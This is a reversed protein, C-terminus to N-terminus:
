EISQDYLDGDIAAIENPAGDLYYLPRATLGAEDMGDNPFRNNEYIAVNGYKVTWLSPGPPSASWFAGPWSCLM